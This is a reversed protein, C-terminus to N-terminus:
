DTMWSSLSFLVPDEVELAAFGDLDVSVFKVRESVVAFRNTSFEDSVHFLLAAVPM